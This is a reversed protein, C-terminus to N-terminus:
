NFTLEIRNKSACKINSNKGKVRIINKNNKPRIITYRIAILESWLAIRDM